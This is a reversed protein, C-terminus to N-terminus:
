KKLKILTEEILKEDIKLYKARSFVGKGFHKVLEYVGIIQEVRFNEKKGFIQIIKWKEKGNAKLALAFTKDYNHIICIDKHRIFRKRFRTFPDEETKRESVQENKKKQLPKNRMQTSKNKMQTPKNKTQTPQQPVNWTFVKTNAIVTKPGNEENNISQVNETSDDTSKEIIQKTWPNDDELLINNNTKNKKKLNPFQNNSEVDLPLNKFFEKVLSEDKKKQKVLKEIWNEYEINKYEKIQQQTTNNTVKDILGYIINQCISAIKFFNEKYVVDYHDGHM